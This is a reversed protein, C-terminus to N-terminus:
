SLKEFMFASEQVPIAGSQRRRNGERGRRGGARTPLCPFFNDNECGQSSHQGEGKGESKKGTRAGVWRLEGPSPLLGDTRQRDYQFGIQRSM